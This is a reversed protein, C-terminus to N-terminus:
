HTSAEIFHSHGCRPCDSRERFEKATVTAACRCCAMQHAKTETGALIKQRHSIELPPVIPLGAKARPRRFVSVSGNAELYARDIEGINRIGAVRFQQFLERQGMRRDHLAAWDLMGDRAIEFPSGEIVAEARESRFILMDLGKNFLVITTIVALSHLIPVDPYFMPDGVASGLAIM